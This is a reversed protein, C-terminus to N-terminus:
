AKEIEPGSIYEHMVHLVPTICKLKSTCRGNTYATHQCSEFAFGAFSSPAFLDRIRGTIVTNWTRKGCSRPLSIKRAPFWNCSASYRYYRANRKMSPPGHFGGALMNTRRQISNSCHINKSLKVKGPDLLLCQCECCLSSQFRMLYVVDMRRFTIVPHPTRLGMNSTLLYTGTDCSSSVTMHLHIHPERVRRAKPQKKKDKYVLRM